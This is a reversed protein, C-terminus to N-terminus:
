NGAKGKPLAAAGEQAPDGVVFMQHAIDGWSPDYGNNGANTGTTAAAGTSANAGSAGGGGSEPLIHSTVSDPGWLHIVIGSPPPPPAARGFAPGAALSLVFACCLM